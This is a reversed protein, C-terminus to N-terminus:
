VIAKKNVKRQELASAVKKSLKKRAEIRTVDAADKSLEVNFEKRMIQCIFIKTWHIITLKKSSNQCLDVSIFQNVWETPVTVLEHSCHLACLNIFLFIFSEYNILINAWIETNREAIFCQEINCWLFKGLGEMHLVQMM